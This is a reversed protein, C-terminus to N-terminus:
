KFGVPFGMVREFQPMDLIRGWYGSSFLSAQPLITKVGTMQIQGRFKKERM